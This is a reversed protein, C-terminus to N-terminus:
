VTKRALGQCIHTAEKKTLLRVICREWLQLIEQAAARRWYIDAKPADNHIICRFHCIYQKTSNSCTTYSGDDRSPPALKASALVVRVDQEYIVAGM